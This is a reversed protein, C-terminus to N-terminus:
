LHYESKPHQGLYDEQRQHSMAEWWEDTIGLQRVAHGKSVQALMGSLGSDDVKFGAHEFIPKFDYGKFKWRRREVLQKLIEYMSFKKDSDGIVDLVDNIFMKEFKPHKFKIEKIEQKATTDDYDSVYTLSSKIFKKKGFTLSKKHKKEPFWVEVPSTPPLYDFSTKPMEIYGKEGNQLTVVGRFNLSRGAIKLYEAQIRALHKM